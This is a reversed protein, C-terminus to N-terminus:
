NCKYSSLQDQFQQLGTHTKLNGLSGTFEFYGGATQCDPDNYFTCTASRTDLSSAMNDMNGPSLKTMSKCIGPPASADNACSTWHKSRCIKITREKRAAVEAPAATVVSAALVAAAVIANMFMM